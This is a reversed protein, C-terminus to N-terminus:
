KLGFLYDHHSFQELLRYRDGLLDAVRAPEKTEILVLAPAHRNFDIGRLVDLEAGEVDLSLLDVGSLGHADLLRSLSDGKVSVLSRKIRQVSEATRIHEETDRGEHDQDVVITMLDLDMVEFFDGAHEEDTLVCEEVIARPRNKRCRQALRPVPEVLLGKWGLKREIFYTNSQRVGDNAGAEVFIGGGKPLYPQLKRDLGNLATWPYLKHWQVRLFRRIPDPIVFM